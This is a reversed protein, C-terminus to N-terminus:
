RLRTGCNFCENRFSSNEAQCSPCKIVMLGSPTANVDVHRFEPVAPRAPRAELEEAPAKPEEKMAPPEAAVTAEPAAQAEGGAPLAPGEPAKSSDEVTAKLPLTGVNVNITPSDKKEDPNRLFASGQRLVAKLAHLEFAIFLLVLLIAAQLFLDM